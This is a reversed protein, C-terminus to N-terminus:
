QPKSVGSSPSTSTSPTQGPLQGPNQAAEPRRGYLRVVASTAPTGGSEIRTQSRLGSLEPAQLAERVRLIRLLASRRMSAFATDTVVVVDWQSFGQKLLPQLQERLAQQAAETLELADALYHLELYVGQDSVTQSKIEVAGPLQGQPSPRVEIEARKQVVETKGGTSLKVGWEPRAEESRTEQPVSSPAGPHATSPQQPLQSMVFIALCLIMVLFLLNLVLNSIADVYGPWFNVSADDTDNAQGAM